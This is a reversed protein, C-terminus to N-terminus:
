IMSVRLAACGINLLVSAVDCQLLASMCEAAHYNYSFTRKRKKRTSEHNLKAVDDRTIELVKGLYRDTINVALQLTNATFRM